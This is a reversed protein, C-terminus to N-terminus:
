RLFAYAMAAQGLYASIWVARRLHPGDRVRGWLAPGLLLAESALVGLAGAMAPWFSWYLTLAGGLALLSAGVEIIAGARARGALSQLRALGFGGAAVLAVLLGAKAGDSLFAARGEGVRLFLYAFVLGEATRFLVSASRWRLVGSPTLAEAIAGLTLAAPVETPAIGRFYSFLALAGLACTKLVRDRAPASGGGDVCAAIAAAISLFPFSSELTV